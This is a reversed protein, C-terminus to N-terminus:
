RLLMDRKRVWREPQPIPKIIKRGTMIDTVVRFQPPQQQTTVPVTTPQSSLRVQALARKQEQILRAREVEEPSLGQRALRMRQAFEARTEVQKARRKLGRKIRYFTTAPVPRGTRPDRHKFVGKPRGVPRKLGKAKKGARVKRGRVGSAIRRAIGRRREAKKRSREEFIEKKLFKREKKFGKRKKVM